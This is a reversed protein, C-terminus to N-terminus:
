VKTANYVMECLVMVVYVYLEGELDSYNKLATEISEKYHEFYEIMGIMKEKDISMGNERFEGAIRFAVEMIVSLQRMDGFVIEDFIDILEDTTVNRIFDGDLSYYLAKPDNIHLTAKIIEELTYESLMQMVEDYSVVKDKVFVEIDYWFKKITNHADGEYKMADVYPAILHTPCLENIADKVLEYKKTDIM